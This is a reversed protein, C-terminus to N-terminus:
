AAYNLLAGDDDVPVNKKGQAVEKGSMSRYSIFKSSLFHHADAVVVEEFDTTTRRM